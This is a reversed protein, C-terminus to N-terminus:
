FPARPPAETKRKVDHEEAKIGVRERKINLRLEDFISMSKRATM